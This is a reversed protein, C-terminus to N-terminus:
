NREYLINTIEELSLLSLWHEFAEPMDDDTGMYLKGHVEQLKVEQEHTLNNVIRELATEDDTKGTGKCYPCIRSGLPAYHPENPYVQEMTAIEGIGNCELCRQAEKLEM